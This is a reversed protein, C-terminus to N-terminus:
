PVRLLQARRKEDDFNRMPSIRTVRVPTFGCFELTARKVANIDGNRYAFRLIGKNEPDVM